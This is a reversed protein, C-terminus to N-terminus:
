PCLNAVSSLLFVCLRVKGFAGLLADLYTSVLAAEGQVADVASSLVANSVGAGANVGALKLSVLASLIDTSLSKKNKQSPPQKNNKPPSTHPCVDCVCM